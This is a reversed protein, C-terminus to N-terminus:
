GLNRSEALQAVFQQHDQTAIGEQLTALVQALEGALLAKINLILGPFVRSSIKGAPTPELPLYAGAQLSFWSISQDTVQWVIYEQVRNRCYAQKKDYLDYSASSAAIEVILEPAGEIYDDESIRSQGGLTEDIRLLADPQPENSPDLIITTNDAAEVGPTAATYVGLWTLILSHPLGHKRYRLAAAMHVVGEILEAKQDEPMVRYRTEFEARSLRDGNELPLVATQTQPIEIMM